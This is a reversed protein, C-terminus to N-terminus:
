QTTSAEPSACVFSAAENPSGGEQYRAFEPYPCLPRTMTVRDEEVRSALLREPPTGGEVWNVLATMADFRDVGLGGRCHAMGPIMFLRYFSRTEDRGITAMVDEYYDVNRQPNLAQDAWGFYGLIKGGRDKFRTMDPEIADLMHRAFEMRKPDEDFDFAALAFEPGEEPFAIYRLYDNARELQVGARLRFRELPEAGIPRGPYLRGQSTEVGGYFKSVATIEEETFCDPSASGSCRPLDQASDFACHRPDTILGDKLGDVGDCQAYVIESLKEVKAKTFSTNRLAQIEWINSLQTGVLDLIPAGVVIGDFDEPFRQASVLGQRGGTSCGHWYSYSPSRTYYTQVIEKATVATLHVARFAYDVLKQLNGHAFSWGPESRRDHGTNTYATAFGQTLARHATARRRPLEPPSGALGGNGHMYFRGNWASPLNVEFRIEPAIVGSVRCHEPADDGSAVVAAAVISYDHGTLSVLSACALSPEAVSETYRITSAGADIFSGNQAVAPVTTALVFLVAPWRVTMRM